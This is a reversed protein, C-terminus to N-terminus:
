RESAHAVDEDRLLRSGDHVLEERGTAGFLEDVRGIEIDQGEREGIRRPDQRSAVRDFHQALAAERGRLVAAPELSTEAFGGGRIPAEDLVRLRRKAEIKSQVLEAAEAGGQVSREAGGRGGGRRRLGAAFRGRPLISLVCRM